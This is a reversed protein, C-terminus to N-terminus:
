EDLVYVNFNRLQEQSAQLSARSREKNKLFYLAAIVQSTSIASVVSPLLFSSNNPAVILNDAQFALPSVQSDTILIIKAKREKAFNSALVSDKTYPYYSYILLVDNQDIFRLEDAFASSIGTVLVTNQTFLRCIYNFYHAASFLSRLGLIYIKKARNLEDSILHLEKSQEPTYTSKINQIDHNFLEDIINQNAMNEQHILQNVSNTYASEQSLVWQVYINKFNEYNEFKFRKIFRVMSAPQVDALKALGRMSEIAVNQPSDIIYKAIKQLIKPLSAFEAKIQEELDNKKM